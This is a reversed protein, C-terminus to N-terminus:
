LIKSNLLIDALFGAVAYDPLELFNEDYTEPDGNWDSFKRVFERREEISWDEWYYEAMDNCGRKGLDESYERLLIGALKREKLNLM